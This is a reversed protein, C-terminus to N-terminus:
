EAEGWSVWRWIFDWTKPVFVKKGIYVSVYPCKSEFHKLFATIPRWSIACHLYNEKVGFLFM